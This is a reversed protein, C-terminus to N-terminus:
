RKELHVRGGPYGSKDTLKLSKKDEQIKPNINKM